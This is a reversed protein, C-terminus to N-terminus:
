RNPSTAEQKPLGAASRYDNLFRVPPKGMINKFMTIFSSANDYGLDMAITQVSDGAMLHRIAVVVHLQHRWRSLRMGLQDQFLRRLSRESMGLRSAWDLPSTADGPAKLLAAVLHRLREDSPMPLALNEPTARVLEDLFLMLLRGNRVDVDDLAPLAVAAYILERLLPSVALTACRPLLDPHADPEILLSCCEVNGTGFAKHPLGGPIWVATQAPVILIAADVECTLAGKACYLLQAKRHSHRYAQDIDGLQASFRSAAVARPTADLQGVWYPPEVAETPM